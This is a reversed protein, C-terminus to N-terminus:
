GQYLSTETFVWGSIGAEEIATKVDEHAIVLFVSEEMRFIKLPGQEGINKQYENVKNGDITLKEFDEYQGPTITSEVFISAAKDLCPVSGIINYMCYENIEEDTGHNIITLPFEELNNVGISKLLEICRKNLIIGQFENPFIDKLKNGEEESTITNLQLVPRQNSLSEGTEWDLRDKDLDDEPTDTLYAYNDLDDLDIQVVYYM